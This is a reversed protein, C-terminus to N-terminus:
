IGIITVNLEKANKVVEDKDLILTNDAEIALVRIKNEALINVTDTGIVPVDFRFDQNPKAVKVVVANEGALSYGRRICDNTGEVSEVAAVSKDKVVVTQGIDLGAVAKAIKYGFEVDANEQSNLKKGCILGKPALLHKLYLHSPMFKIGERAFEEAVAALITDAKKNILSAMLKVARMDMSLAATYIKTHKVLGVMVAIDVNNSKFFDIIKQLKGVNIRECVDCVSEFDLSAEDKLAVGVIRDGSKKIQEAVLFPFRGKGAIIGINKMISENFDM